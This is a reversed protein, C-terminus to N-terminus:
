ASVSQRRTANIWRFVWVVFACPLDLERALDGATCGKSYNNRVAEMPESLAEALWPASVHLRDAMGILTSDSKWRRLAATRLQEVTKASPIPRKTRRTVLPAREPRQPLRPGLEGADEARVLRM